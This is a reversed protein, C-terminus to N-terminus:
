RKSINVETRNLPKLFRLEPNTFRAPPPATAIFFYSVTSTSISRSSLLHFYIRTDAWKDTKEIGNETLGLMKWVSVLTRPEMRLTLPFAHPSRGSLSGIFQTELWLNSKM